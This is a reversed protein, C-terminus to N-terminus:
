IMNRYAMLTKLENIESDVCRIQLLDKSQILLVLLIDFVYLALDWCQMVLAQLVALSTRLLLNWGLVALRSCFSPVFSIM